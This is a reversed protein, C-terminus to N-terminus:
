GFRIRWQVQARWPNEHPRFTEDSEQISYQVRLFYRRDGMPHYIVSPIMAALHNAHEITVSKDKDGITLRGETGGLGHRSSVLASLIGTHNIRNSGLRFTEPTSGGNHTEMYLTDQDWIEPNFTFHGIRITGYERQPLEAWKDITISQGQVAIQNVIKIFQGEYSFRALLGNDLRLVKYDGETLDTVKHSGPREIVVHGSYFDAGFSIDDYYGHELTGLLSHEGLTKVVCSHIALGKPKILVLELDPTDLTLSKRSESVSCDSDTYPLELPNPLDAPDLQPDPVQWEKLAQGLRTQFREWRQETIHTRFDSSWLYCLEKWADAPQEDTQVFHHYIQYCATNIGLDDRGTLAWRNINYKEQKKVPIPQEPSELNVTCGGDETQLGELVKSPFILETQPVKALTAFLGRIREWERRQEDVEAETKYRGPRYDFIEVDNSYIPFYRDGNRHTDLFALYEELDYEGHVYRQFKQFAISDAWIVPIRQGGSGEVEQPYHRWNDEWEPHYRRPNNWEMVIAEYGARVYHEVIGASYAMENVLAIRPRVGLLKEYVGLGILQNWHNVRAPVLPGIIQSYGSGIFEVLGENILAKLQKIWRADLEQVIELTIGTAEIGLPFGARALELLPWYCKEVVQPREEVEISSYMLNLHFCTYLRLM